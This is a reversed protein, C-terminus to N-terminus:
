PFIEREGYAAAIRQLAVCYAAVRLSAKKQRSMEVVERYARKMAKELRLDVEELTWSESRKNQVWEYYSVTVGGSNALVDPLIDIGRELLVKEGDPTCPGNAGEAVLRVQLAQAEEVGVQNELAAPIFIDAKIKFFEERTIAKGGPYGAISRNKKVYDQLKHPNFGEPNYLYGTHDGVAITSAGLKSLIVATNSGVNGFGQVLLTSGGLNFGKDDAWETICHVVGQGTAKERGLTGGAAVPKGTVVGKVAQKSVSGVTNMYTDMAWAMTKSDTGVDPAPIDTEPGINSGLDHFFRRTIRQLEQRSVENPDFKIGGKGGGLPLNMLACKWTMMAALAKLDDLSVSRHYRIGGKYPGLVNSHQIRYGKFLRITGDDMKVPFNVIIENKPQSLITHIYDPLDILKAADDLYAQIVKFFEYKSKQPAAASLSQPPVTQEDVIASM